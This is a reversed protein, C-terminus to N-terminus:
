KVERIRLIKNDLIEIRLRIFFVTVLFLFTALTMIFLPVMMSIDISPSSLKSITAPQHLTNWWDVSFKIIPINVFGVIALAASIKSALDKNTISQWLFIYALYLFFLLLMSTLRADWVWWVGWTPKGWISGTVLSILTFIMGIQAISRAIISFIPNRTIFWLVSSGALITYAMLAFWASPVHIYMIRMSDGQIYDPPSQLLSFYLGFTFAVITSVILFPNAKEIINIQKNTLRLNM